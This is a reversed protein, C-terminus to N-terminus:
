KNMDYEEIYVTKWIIGNIHVTTYFITSHHLITVILIGESFQFIHPRLM